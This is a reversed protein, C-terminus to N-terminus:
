FIEHWYHIQGSRSVVAIIEVQSRKNNLEALSKIMYNDSKVAFYGQDILSSLKAEDIQNLLKTDKLKTVLESTSTFVNDDVTGELQDAGKRYTLIDNVLRADLGLSVLVEM